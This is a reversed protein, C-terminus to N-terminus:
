AVRSSISQGIFNKVDGSFTYPNDLEIFAWRGFRGLANVGPVWRTNMTDAKAADQETRRGKVEVVLYIPDDPGNGDDLRLIYDPRYRHTEGRYEYPVEFGLNHNKVYALCIDSLEREIATAFAKEWDQDAIVYNVHCLAPNTSFLDSKSTAFDVFRTSGEENYPNPIARVFERSSSPACARAIREAAKQAMPRWLFVRKLAERNQGHCTLCEEFWRETIRLLEGFRHLPIEPAPSQPQEEGPTFLKPKSDERIYRRLTYGAVAYYVSKMRQSEYNGLSLEIGEGVIPEVDTSTPIDDPTVTLKSDDTFNAVLPGRPYAVRYGSINPFRIECSEREQLARVRTMRPPPTIKAPTPNQTFDFPIGLVDAYEPLLKGDEGPTYSVRRLGRGVVQECLLQTGFARVGLIHSVTNADWGETLMSVSVVCRIEGGLKGPQGVTNMVERLIHADTLKEAASAGDRRAVENRFEDIEKAAAKRFDDPLSDGSELAESDILITRPKDRWHATETVNSFLKLKGEILRGRVEGSNEESREYGSIFDYILKSTATNNAVVIFVPPRGINSEDWEKFTVEYHHYLAEVASRLLEPLEEPDLSGADKKRGKKPLSNKPLNAYLARYKPMDGSVADDLVPLRPTKVIGCEIADMLSFDSVVWPFLTGEPYGSGRLFFPTASLDYVTQVERDRALAEIGSIWVRAAENNKKAEDKEETDLKNEESEGPKERYCHHAEDNLVIVRKLGMLKSAVRQIMQGETELFRKPEEGRDALIKRAEPKVAVTERLQFAHYNTVVVRAKRLDGLMEPPVLRRKPDEFYNGSEEPQLVRLRDRITIGPAVILFGNTFRSSTPRRAANIAQWAILLAMVTTKGSGTAMKAAIRFLGPNAAQNAALLEERYSKPAVETLWIITEVAELQCFFYPFERVSRDRWWRLLRETEPTVSWKSSPLGRWKDVEPRVLKVLTNQSGLDDAGLEFETQGGSRRPAAVPVVYGPDRRGQKTKGTPQGKSDLIWHEAPEDYPTNLIPNIEFPQVM